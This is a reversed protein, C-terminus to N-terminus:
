RFAFVGSEIIIKVIIFFLFSIVTTVVMKKAIAPKEPASTAHGIEPSDPPASGFPLVMLFVWWWLLIYVVISSVIDM